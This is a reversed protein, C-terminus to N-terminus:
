GTPPNLVAFAKDQHQGPKTSLEFSSGSTNVMGLDCAGSGGSIRRCIISSTTSTSTPPQHDRGDLHHFNSTVMVAQNLGPKTLRSDPRCPSPRRRGGGHDGLDLIPAPTAM